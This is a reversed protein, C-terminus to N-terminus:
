ASPEVLVYLFADMRNLLDRVAAFADDATLPELTIPDVARVKHYRDVLMQIPQAGEWLPLLCAAQGPELYVPAYTPLKIDRSIEFAEGTQICRMLEEQTRATRLQPHLHVVASRWAADGWDDVSLGAEGPHTCWFDMLRHIPNLLEYIRLQDAMSATALGMTWIAPLEDPNQFLDSIEWHRWNVMSVLELDTDELINLLDSITYGKDGVLLLNAGLFEKLEDPSKNEIGRGLWTEAKLKVHDKLAKMTEIVAEEAFEQPAEDMLGIFKFLAQARYYNRRQYAHHLNARILGNPKLVSKMAQLGVIPDPLLYLVEDCNVYDFEMDLSQLDEIPLVHFEANEYGHYQLRQHAMDVSQESIDIGVITAGPNAEALILAKYGSGCGADLIVKGQTDVVKRHRLYYPTVLNHLYLNEYNEKPSEELPVRPYPGYNFQQRIKDIETLDSRRADM